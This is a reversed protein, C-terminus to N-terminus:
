EQIPKFVFVTDLDGESLSFKPEFSESAMYSLISYLMQKAVPRDDIDNHLDISTAVLKGNGVKAEFLIGMKHNRELNDIVQVVPRFKEPMHDFIMPRSRKVLDWWQWNSHNETPFKSLVLHNEECLLGMTGPPNFRKFMTYSWFDTTFGGEISNLLQDRNALFLVNEGNRLADITKRNWQTATYISIPIDTNVEEPYVWIDWDNKIVTGAIAVSIKYKSPANLINLPMEISGIDNLCGKHITAQPLEIKHVVNNKEDTIYFLPMVNQLDTGSYNSVKIKCSFTENNIWCRKEMIVLPVVESCFNRWNEPSILDKSDMFSDLIGCLATGQGPYDKLDLLQFGGFGPTRLTAEIEEKYLQVQLAGSSKFFDEAQHLM